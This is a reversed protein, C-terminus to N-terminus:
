GSVTSDALIEANAEELGQSFRRANEVYHLSSLQLMKREPEGLTRAVRAPAGIILSGEPFEKGETILAGAGVISGAGIRAGNLITAGMGILTDDGIECGHLMVKHGVTVGKGIVLPKGPDAHLVSGDQVNTGEGIRIEETDGRVTVGFWVSAGKGLWVNGIVTATPAVWVSDDEFRPRVGDLAYIM